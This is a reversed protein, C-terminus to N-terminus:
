TLFSTQYKVMKLWSNGNVENHVFFYCSGHARILYLILCFINPYLQVETKLDAYSRLAQISSLLLKVNIFLWSSQLTESLAGHVPVILLATRPGQPFGTHTNFCHITLLLALDLLVISPKTPLSPLPPACFSLMDEPFTPKVLYLCM